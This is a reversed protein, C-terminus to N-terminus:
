SVFMQASLKIATSFQYSELSRSSVDSEFSSGGLDCLTLPLYGYSELNTEVPHALQDSRPVGILMLPCQGTEEARTVLGADDKAREEIRFIIM